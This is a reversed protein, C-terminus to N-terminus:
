TCIGYHSPFYWTTGTCAGTMDIGLGGLSGCSDGPVSCDEPGLCWECCVTAGGLDMCISDPRCQPFVGLDCAEGPQRTGPDLTVCQEIFMCATMDPVWNCWEDSGCDCQLVVSCTGEDTGPICEVDEADPEDAADGTV